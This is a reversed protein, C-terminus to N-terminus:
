QLWGAACIAWDVGAARHTLGSSRYATCEPMSTYEVVVVVARVARAVDARAALLLFLVITRPGQTFSPRDAPQTVACTVDVSGDRGAPLCVCWVMLSMMVWIACLVAGGELADVLGRM